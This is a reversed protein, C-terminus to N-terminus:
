EDDDAKRGRTAVGLPEPAEGAEPEDESWELCEEPTYTMHTKRLAVIANKVTERVKAAGRYELVGDVPRPVWQPELIEVPGSYTGIVGYRTAFQNPFHRYYWEVVEETKDGEHKTKKPRPPISKSMPKDPDMDARQFSRIPLENEALFTIVNAKYNRLHHLDPFTVVGTEADYLAVVKDELIADGKGKKRHIEKKTVDYTYTVPIREEDAM